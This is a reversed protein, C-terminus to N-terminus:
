VNANLLEDAAYANRWLIAMSAVECCAQSSSEHTLLLHKRTVAGSLNTRVLKILFTCNYSYRYAPSHFSNNAHIPKSTCMHPTLYKHVAQLHM